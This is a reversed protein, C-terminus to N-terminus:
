DQTWLVDPVGEMHNAWRALVFLLDGLRNVYTLAYPNITEQAALPVLWREARRCVTRAVNIHAACTSGGPLIFNALPPLQETLRDMTAEMWVIREPQVRKIRAENDSGHPTALDAGLTFLQHMLDNLLAALAPHTCVGAALGLHANAEDITGYTEIRLHDKRVRSGDFLGTTGDDGTKTYIRM